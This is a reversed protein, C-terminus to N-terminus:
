ELAVKGEGITARIRKELKEILDEKNEWVIISHQAIDFHPKNVSEFEQKRCTIIVQKGKGLAYGAEYYAGYNQVTADMICFSSTEICELMEPVIQDNYEREDMFIADFHAKKAGARIAERISDTSERFAIAVFCMGNKQENQLLEDIRQWGKTTIRVYSPRTETLYSSDILMRTIGLMQPNPIPDEDFFARALCAGGSFDAGYRSTREKLNILIRDM